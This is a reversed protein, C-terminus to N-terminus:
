YEKIMKKTEVVKGDVILSYSYIGKSLNPAFVAINGAGKEINTEKIKKGNMDYFVILAAKADTPINYAITTKEAFPNPVNQALIISQLNELTIDYQHEAQAQYEEGNPNAMRMQSNGGCCSMLKSELDKLKLQVVSNLSDIIAQQENIGRVLLPIFEIYNVGKISVTDTVIKGLSDVVQPQVFNQVLNPLVVEVEQAIFGFHSGKPMSLQEYERTKYEYQKAEIKKIIDLANSVDSINEKLKKDSLNIISGTLGIDGNSYVAYATGTTSAAFASVAINQFGTAFNSQFYGATNYGNSGTVVSQLGIQIFDTSNTNIDFRAQPSTVGIGARTGNDFIVGNCLTNASTFRAIRNNIASCSSISPFGLSSLERYQIRGGNNQDVLLVRTLNNNLNVTRISAEGNVDLRTAPTPTGIGLLGNATLRVRELNNTFFLMPGDEQHRLEANPVNGANSSNVGIKFGDNAGNGCFASSTQVYMQSEDAYLHLKSQPDFFNINGIGVNLTSGKLEMIGGGSFFSGLQFQIDNLINHQIFRANGNAEIGVRFGGSGIFAPIPTNANTFNAYVENATTKHMHLFNRIDTTGVGIDGVSSITARLLGNTSFNIPQNFNNRIELAKSNVGTGDWGVFENASTSTNNLRTIQSYALTTFLLQITMVVLLIKIKM